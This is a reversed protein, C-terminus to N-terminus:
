RVYPLGLAVYVPRAVGHEDQVPGRTAATLEHPLLEPALKKPGALRQVRRPEEDDQGVPDTVPLRALRGVPEVRTERPVAVPVHDLCLEPEDGLAEPDVVQPEHHTSGHAAHVGPQPALQM